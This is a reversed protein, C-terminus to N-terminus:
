NGFLGQLMGSLDLSGEGNESGGFLQGALGQVDVGELLGSLDLEGNENTVYQTLGSLDVNSLMEELNLEGPLSSLDFDTNGELAGEAELEAYLEALAAELETDTMESQVEAEGEAASELMDFFSPGKSLNEETVFVMHMDDADGEMTLQVTNDTHYELIITQETENGKEDKTTEKILIKGDNFTYAVKEEPDEGELTIDLSDERIVLKGNMGILSAPMMDSGLKISNLFWEGTFDEVTADAKIEATGLVPKLERVYYVSMEDDGFVLSGDENITMAYDKLQGNEDKEVNYAVGDKMYWSSTQSDQGDSVIVATNDANLTLTSDMGLGALDMCDKGFCMKQIHWTGLYDAAEKEDIAPLEGQASAAFVCAFMALAMVAFLLAFKKM